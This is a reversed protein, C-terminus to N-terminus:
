KLWATLRDVLHDFMLRMRRDAKLDEHMVVWTPLDFGFSDHLVPVLDPDRAAIKIQVAGIGFGARLAALQATDSDSRLAFLDPTIAFGLREAVGPLPPTRDFGIVSRGTIGAMTAPM